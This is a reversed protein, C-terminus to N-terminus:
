DKSYCIKEFFKAARNVDMDSSIKLPKLFKIQIQDSTFKLGDINNKPFGKLIVPCLSYGLTKAIRFIGTRFTPKFTGSPFVWLNKPNNEVIAELMSFYGGETIDEGNIPDKEKTKLVFVENANENKEFRGNGGLLYYFNKINLINDWIPDNALGFDKAILSIPQLHKELLIGDYYGHHHSIYITNDRNFYKENIIECNVQPCFYDFSWRFIKSAVLSGSNNCFLYDLVCCIQTYILRLIILCAISITPIISAKEASNETKNNM